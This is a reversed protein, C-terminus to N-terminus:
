GILDSQNIVFSEPRSYEVGNVDAATRFNNCQIILSGTSSISWNDNEKITNAIKEESAYDDSIYERQFLGYQVLEDIEKKIIKALTSYLQESNYIDTLKIRQGTDADFNDYYVQVTKERISGNFSSYHVIEEYKDTFSLINRGMAYYSGSKSVDLLVDVAVDTYRNSKDWASYYKNQIYDDIRGTYESYVKNIEEFKENHKYVTPINYERNVWVKIKDNALTSKSNAINVNIYSLEALTENENYINSFSSDDISEGSLIDDDIKNKNGENYKDSSGDSTVGYAHSKKPGNISGLFPEIVVLLVVVCAIGVAVCATSKWVSSRSEARQCETYESDTSEDFIESREVIEKVQLYIEKKSPYKVRTM